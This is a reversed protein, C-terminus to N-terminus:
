KYLVVSEEEVSVKYTKVKVSEPNRISCGNKVDFDWHHWPCYLVDRKKDYCYEGVDSPLAAGQLAGKGLPGGQHPCVNRMAHFGDETRILVISIRGVQFIEKDGIELKEKDCLVHKEM